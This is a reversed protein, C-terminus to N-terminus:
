GNKIFNYLIETIENKDNYGKQEIIKIFKEILKEFYEIPTDQYVKSEQNTIKLKDGFYKKLERLKRMAFEDAINECNKMFLAGERLSLDRTYCGYMKDIGYKKYQYQHAIEHFLVYLFYSLELSFVKINLVSGNITSLGLAPYKFSDVKISKCGSKTIFDKIFQMIYVSDPFTESMMEFFDDIGQQELLFNLQQENIIIKKM